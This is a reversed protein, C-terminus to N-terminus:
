NTKEDENRTDFRAEGIEDGHRAVFRALAITGGITLVLVFAGVATDFASRDFLSGAGLALLGTALVVYIGVMNNRTRKEAM